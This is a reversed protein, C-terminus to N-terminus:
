LKSGAEKDLFWVLEGFNPKIYNAPYNNAERSEELINKVAESKDAGSIMFYINESNNILRGTMTIRKQGTVPHISVECMKESNLIDLRDPFISATHGDSGIGMLLIDFKSLGNSPKIGNLSETTYREAETEPESEGHIRHIQNIGIELPDLLHDFALKYNSESDSPPVCREDVWYFNVNRWKVKSRYNRALEDFLLKPTNGGSLGINIKEETDILISMKNALYEALGEDLSLSNRFM